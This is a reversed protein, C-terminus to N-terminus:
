RGRRCLQAPLAPVVLGAAWIVFLAGVVVGAGAATGAWFARGRSMGEAKLPMSIIAGRPFNQHCTGLVAGACGDGHYVCQETLCGAYWRVGVAMGEPINHLSPWVLM